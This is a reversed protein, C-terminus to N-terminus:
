EIYNYLEIMDVVRSTDLLNIQHVGRYTDKSWHGQGLVWTLFRGISIDGWGNLVHLAFTHRPSCLVDALGSMWDVKFGTPFCKWSFPGLTYSM